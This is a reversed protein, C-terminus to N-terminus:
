PFKSVAVSGSSRGAFPSITKAAKPTIAYGGEGTEQLYGAEVLRQMLPAVYEGSVGMSRAVSSAGAPGDEAVIRLIQTETGTM